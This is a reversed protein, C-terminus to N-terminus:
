LDRTGERVADEEPPAHDEAMSFAKEPLTIANVLLDFALEATGKAGAMLSEAPLYIVNPDKASGKVEFIATDFGQREGSFLKGFLPVSKLLDSYQGLPSVAVVGDFKDDIFDYRATASIKLVPSDLLFESINIIGHEVGFVLKLRDFPIGDRTLDTKGELLAPLNIIALVKSIVPAYLLRGQEIMVSIPRRSTISSRFASDLGFEAQVVGKAAMWGSIRPREDLLSFLHDVPVGSVGFMSRVWQPGREQINLIVHGALHGDDTDGNIRDIKLNGREFRIRCSLGSVLSKGYYLYDIRVTADLSGNVWWTSVAPFSDSSSSGSPNVLKLSAVDIQSSQVTLKARPAELWDTISGSLRMDSGGVTFTVHRIDINKGDFRLRMSLNRIPDQFQQEIVGKDFGLRGSTVWSARDMARGEMKLGAEIIGARVSGLRVGQPLQDLSLADSRIRAGFEWDDALRIRGEGTLRVPPFMLECRRVLLLLDKQLKGEFRIGAPVGKAKDFVNAIRFDTGDLTLRGQFYPTRVHGAMSASLLVPGEVNLKFTEGDAGHLWPALDEGDATIKLAVGQFSPEGSFAVRGGAEVRAFGAQGSLHDLYVEEPLIRVGAEIQRFPIPVNQHRFGLNHIAVSVEEIDLEGKGLHGGLRAAIGVEGTVQELKSLDASVFQPFRGQNNLLAIMDAARAEASIRLDVMPEGRWGTVLATGDSLRVPGYNGRLSAIRVQELDFLVTASLERVAPHTGGPLFRGERIEVTGAIHLREAQGLPGELHMDHVSILGEVAHESLKNQLDAPIWEAPVHSLTQKLPVSSSSLDASVRPGATGLGTVTAAGQLSVDSFGARWDTVILDYGAPRPMLRLRGHMQVPTVFGSPLPRLGLAGTISHVDLRHIRITGEAQALTAADPSKGDARNLLVLSGELNFLASESTEQPMEGSVQIKAARGPMDETMTLQLSALHMPNMQVSGSQDVISVEGDVILLNRMFALFAFPNGKEDSAAEPERKREGITWQGSPDRRVTMRPSELVVHAAVVRGEVRPGIQLAVDVHKVSLLPADIQQEFMKVHRLDLRPRPFLRLESDEFELRHGTRQEVQHLLVNKVAQANLSWSIALLATTMLGIALAVLLLLRGRSRSVDSSIQGDM